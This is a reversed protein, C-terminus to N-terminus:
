RCNRSRCSPERSGRWWSPGVGLHHPIPGEATAHQSSRAPQALRARPRGEGVRCAASLISPPLQVSASIAILSARMAPVLLWGPASLHVGLLLLPRAPIAYPGLGMMSRQFSRTRWVAERDSLQLVDKRHKCNGSLCLRMSRNVSFSKATLYTAKALTENKPRQLCSQFTM